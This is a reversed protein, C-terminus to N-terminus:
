RPKAGAPVPLSAEAALADAAAMAKLQAAARAYGGDGGDLFHVHDDSLVSPVVCTMLAADQEHLGYHVTGASRARELIARLRRVEEARCDVTLGLGDDFKRFDTNRVTVRRYRLPDFGGLRRGSRDVAWALLTVLRLSWRRRSLGAAGGGARAELELGAPPWAFGPGAEPVPHGSRGDAAVVALVDQVTHDFAADSAAGAAALLLSVTRGRRAPVPTWRCSLGALDPRSGAPAPAVRYRGAKVQADAWAVGGGTMTAYTVDTSARFRGVRADRGAARLDAVPVLGTRLDLALAESAWTGTAALVHRALPVAVGPVAFACGDGGFVFPFAGHELANTMAAIAAAGAFNVAKYGGADALETSGVVDTVGIWWDAPLPRYVSPDTVRAFAAFPPIADYADFRM